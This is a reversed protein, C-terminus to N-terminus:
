GVNWWFSSVVKYFWGNVGFELKFEVKINIDIIYLWKLCIYWKVM